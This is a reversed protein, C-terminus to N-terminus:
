GNDEEWEEIEELGPQLEELVAGIIPAAQEIGLVRHTRNNLFEQVQVARPLPRLAARNPYFDAQDEASAVAQALKNSNNLVRTVYKRLGLKNILEDDKTIADKVPKKMDDTIAETLSAMNAIYRSIIQCQSGYTYEKNKHLERVDKHWEDIIKLVEPNNVTVDHRSYQQKIALRYDDGNLEITVFATDGRRMSFIISEGSACRWGYSGVCHKMSQGEDILENANKLFKFTFGNYDKTPHAFDVFEVHAMERRVANDRNMFKVFRDHLNRVFNYHCIKNANISINYREAMQVTDRFLEWTIPHGDDDTYLHKAQDELANIYKTFLADATKRRSGFIMEHSANLLTALITPNNVAVNSVFHYLRKNKFMFEIFYIINHFQHQHQMALCLKQTTTTHAKGLLFKFVTSPRPKKKLAKFFGRGFKPRPFMLPEPDINPMTGRSAVYGGWGERIGVVADFIESNLWPIVQGTKSQWLLTMIKQTFVDIRGNSTSMQSGQLLQEKPVGLKAAVVEHMKNVFKIIHHERFNHLMISVPMFQNSIGRIKCVMRSRKENKDKKEWTITYLNGTKKNFVLRNKSLNSPKGTDYVKNITYQYTILKLFTNDEIFRHSSLISHDDLLGHNDVSYENDDTVRVRSGSGYFNRPLPLLAVPATSPVAYTKAVATHHETTFHEGHTYNSKTRVKERRRTTSRHLNHEDRLLFVEDDPGDTGLIEDITAPQPTEVECYQRVMEREPAPAEPDDLEKSVHMLDLIQRDEETLEKTNIYRDYTNRLQREADRRMARAEADAPSEQKSKTTAPKRELKTLYKRAYDPNLYAVLDWDVYWVGYFGNYIVRTDVVM